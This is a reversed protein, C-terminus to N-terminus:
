LLLRSLLTAYGARFIGGSGGKFFPPSTLTNGGKGLPPNPPNKSVSRGEINSRHNGMPM